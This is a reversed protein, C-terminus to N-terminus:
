VKGICRFNLFRVSGIFFRVGRLALPIVVGNLRANASVIALAWTCEDRGDRGRGSRVSQLSLCQGAADNGIGLAEFMHVDCGSPRGVNCLEPAAPVPRMRTQHVGRAPEALDDLPKM